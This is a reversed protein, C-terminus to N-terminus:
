ITVQGTQHITESFLSNPSVDHEGQMVPGLEVSSVVHRITHWSRYHTIWGVWAGNYLMIKFFSVRSCVHLYQLM